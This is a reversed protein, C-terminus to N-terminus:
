SKQGAQGHPTHGDSSGDYMSRLNTAKESFGESSCLIGQEGKAKEQESTTVPNKKKFARFAENNIRVITKLDWM